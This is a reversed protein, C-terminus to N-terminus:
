ASFGLETKVWRYLHRELQELGIRAFSGDFTHSSAKAEPNWAVALCHREVESGGFRKVANVLMSPVYYRQTLHERMHSAGGLPHTGDEAVMLCGWCDGTDPPPVRGAKFAEMYGRVFRRAQQKLRNDAKPDSTGVGSVTGDASITIGEAFPYHESEWGEAYNVLYWVGKTQCVTWGKPLFRNIREKTTVTRWGGSHLVTDGAPTVTVIETSHLVVGLSGDPKRVLRTNNALLSKKPHETAYTQLAHM